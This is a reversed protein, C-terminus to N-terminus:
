RIRGEVFRCGHGHGEGGGLGGGFQQGFEFDRAQVGGCSRARFHWLRRGRHPIRDVCGPSFPVSATKGLRHEGRPQLSSARRRAADRRHDLRERRTTCPGAAGIVRARHRQHACRRKEFHHAQGGATALCRRHRRRLRCASFPHRSCSPSGFCRAGEREAAALVSQSAELRSLLDDFNEAVNGIEDNGHNGLRMSLDQHHSITNIRSRMAELRHVLQRTLFYAGVASLMLALLTILIFHRRIAALNAALQARSVEVRLVYYYKGDPLTLGKTRCECCDGMTTPVKRYFVYGDRDPVPSSFDFRGDLPAHNQTVLSDAPMQGPITHADQSHVYGIVSGTPTYLGISRIEADPKIANELTDSIFSMAVSAELVRTRNHNPIMLFKFPWSLDPSRLLPTRQSELNGHILDAYKSCYTFLPREKAIPYSFTSRIYKGREDTIYLNFMHVRDRLAKLQATTPLGHVGEWDRLVYAANEMMLDSVTDIQMLTDGIQTSLNEYHHVYDDQAQRTLFRLISYESVFLVAVSVGLLAGFVKISFRM